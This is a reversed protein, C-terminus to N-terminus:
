PKPQPDKTASGAEELERQRQQILSDRPDVAEPDVLWRFQGQSAALELEQRYAEYFGPVMPLVQQWDAVIAQNPCVVLCRYCHICPDQLRPPDASVEIGGVPCEGQCILCQDCREPDLSLRPMVQALRQPTMGQAQKLWSESSVPGPRPQPYDGAAALGAMRAGFERAQDLDLADPHGSTYSFRPYPPFTIDAYSHHYGVVRAGREQLRGALSPFFNGIVNGHTCFLFWPRGQQPPLSEVLERVNLPEQYYFVPAGLGVLDPGQALASEAQDLGVLSCDMGGQDLGQIISDALKRTNGTQSFCIILCQM